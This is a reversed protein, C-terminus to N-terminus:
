AWSSRGRRRCGGPPRTTALPSHPPGSPCSAGWAAAPLPPPPPPPSGRLLGLRPRTVRSPPGGSPHSGCAGCRQSRSCNGRPPLGGRGESRLKGRTPSERAETTHQVSGASGRLPTAPTPAFSVHQRKHFPRKSAHVTGCCGGPHVHVRMCLLANCNCVRVHVHVICM